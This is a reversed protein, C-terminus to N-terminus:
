SERVMLSIHRDCHGRFREDDLLGSSGWLAPSSFLNLVTEWFCMCPSFHRKLLQDLWRCLFMSSGEQSHISSFLHGCTSHWWHCWCLREEAYRWLMMIFRAYRWPGARCPVSWSPGRFCMSTTWMSCLHRSEFSALMYPDVDQIVAHALAM